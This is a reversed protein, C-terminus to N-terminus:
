QERVLACAPVPVESVLRKEHGRGHPAEEEDDHMFKPRTHVAGGEGGRGGGEGDGKGGGGEGDGGGDGSGAGGGGARGDLQALGQPRAVQRSTREVRSQPWLAADPQSQAPQQM